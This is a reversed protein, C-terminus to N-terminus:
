LQAYCKHRPRKINTASVKQWSARPSQFDLTAVDDKTEKGKKEKRYKGNVQLCFTSITSHRITAVSMQISSM